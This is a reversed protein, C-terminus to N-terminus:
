TNNHDELLHSNEELYERAWPQLNYPWGTIVHGLTSARYIIGKAELGGAVGDDVPSKVTNEKDFIFPSLYTKEAPTLEHLQRKQAKRAIRLKWAKQAKRACWFGLQSFIVSVSVLFIIGLISKYQEQFDLIGLENLFSDASFLVIGVGVSIGLFLQPTLKKLVGLFSILSDIM